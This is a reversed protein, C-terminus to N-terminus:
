LERAIAAAVDDLESRDTAAWWAGFDIGDDDHRPVVHLHVHDVEQGAAPGDSLLFNVGQADIRDSSRLAAAVRMGAQFLHGGTAEDLADLRSAHERPLVLTHGESVPAIDLVALTLDDERVVSAPAEGAVIACFPCDSM